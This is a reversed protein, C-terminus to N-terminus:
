GIWPVAARHLFPTVTAAHPGESSIAQYRVFRSRTLYLSMKACDPPRGQRATCTRRHAVSRKADRLLIALAQREASDTCCQRWNTRRQLRRRSSGDTLISQASFDFEARMSRRDVAPQVPKNIQWHFEDSARAEPGVIGPENHLRQQLVRANLIALGAKHQISDLVRRYQWYLSSIRTSQSSTEYAACM